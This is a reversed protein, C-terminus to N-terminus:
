LEPGEQQAIDERMKKNVQDVSAPELCTPKKGM